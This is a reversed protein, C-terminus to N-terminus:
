INISGGFGIGIGIGAGISDATSSGPGLGISDLGTLINLTGGWSGQSTHISHAMANIDYACHSSTSLDLVDEQTVVHITARERNLNNGRKERDFNTV